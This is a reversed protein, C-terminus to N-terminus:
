GGLRVLQQHAHVHGVQGALQEGLLHGDVLARALVREGEGLRHVHAHAGLRAELEEVRELRRLLVVRGEEEGDAPDVQLRGLARRRLREAAALEIELLNEVLAPRVHQALAQRDVRVAVLVLALLQAGKVHGHARDGRQAREVSRQLLVAARRGGLAGFGLERRGGILQPTPARPAARHDSGQRGGLVHPHLHGDGLQLECVHPGHRRLDVVDRHLVRKDAPCHDLARTYRQAVAAAVKVVDLRLEIHARALRKATRHHVRDLRSRRHFGVRVKDNVSM